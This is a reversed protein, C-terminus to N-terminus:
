VVLAWTIRFIRNAAQESSTRFFDVAQRLDSSAHESSTKLGDIANRLQRSARIQLEAQGVEILPAPTPQTEKSGVGAAPAPTGAGPISM